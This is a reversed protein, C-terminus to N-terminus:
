PNGSGAEVRADVDGQIVLRLHAVSASPKIDKTWVGNNVDLEMMKGDRINRTHPNTEVLVVVIGARVVKQLSVLPKLKM